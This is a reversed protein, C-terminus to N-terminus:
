TKCKKQLLYEGLLNDSLRMRPISVLINNNRLALMNDNRSLVKEGNRECSDNDFVLFMLVHRRRATFAVFLLARLLWERSHDAGGSGGDSANNDCGRVERMRYAPDREGGRSLRRRTADSRAARAEDSTAIGRSTPTDLTIGRRFAAHSPKVGRTRPFAM